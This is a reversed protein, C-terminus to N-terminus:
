ALEIKFGKSQFLKMANHIIENKKIDSIFGSGSDKYYSIDNIYLVLDYDPGALIESDILFKGDKDQYLVGTRGLIKVSRGQKDKADKM